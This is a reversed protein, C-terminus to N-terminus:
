KLFPVPNIPTGNRRVEFHLHTGTSRGSSGMRGIIQGQSVTQGVEADLRQQHAYLTQYGDGHDIIVHCGYGWKLCGSYVVKGARAAMVAPAAPNAIDIAMHYWVPYQTIQGQTPWIYVGGAGPVIQPVPAIHVIAPAEPVVGDPVVIVQGVRLAFTDLDEFDNFLFNLIKQAESKYKKAISYITEGEKVTHVVGTVPPIKLEQGISIQDSGLNSAWKITDESVGFTEAIKNLTDGKQVVYTIVRDRPKASVLTISGLESQNLSTSVESPSSFQALQDENVGPYSSAIAPAGIVTAAILLFFSLNLFSRSYRGRKVILFAVLYGKVVEFRAFARRSKTHLYWWFIRLFTLFDAFLLVLEDWVKERWLPLGAYRSKIWFDLKKWGERRLIAM